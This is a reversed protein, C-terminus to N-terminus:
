ILWAGPHKKKDISSFLTSRSAISVDVNHIDLVRSESILGQEQIQRLPTALVNFPAEYCWDKLIKLDCRVIAELVNPIVLFRCFRIFSETDFNSDMKTIEDLVTQLENNSKM